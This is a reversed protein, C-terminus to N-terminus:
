AWRTTPCPIAAADSLGAGDGCTAMLTGDQGFVLSGVGHTFNLIVCGTGASEGLLITRSAPDVSRFGDSARATYRTIRGMTARNYENAAPNYAPTGFKTLYHHDLAYLLYIYGNERFNPHLAVSLLRHDDWAGVEERIDIMPTPHKVDNELIWVRGAREWTYM